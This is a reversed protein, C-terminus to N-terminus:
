KVKGELQEVHSCRGCKMRYMNDEDSYSCSIEILEAKDNGCKKCKHDHVALVNSDDLVRIEKAQEMNKLTVTTQEQNLTPQAHGSPCAMWKGYSTKELQLLTGCHKCFMTM